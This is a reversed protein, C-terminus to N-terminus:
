SLRHKDYPIRLTQLIAGMTSTKGAGNEGIFGTISGYPVSFSINKLAFRSKSFSKCLGEIELAYEM